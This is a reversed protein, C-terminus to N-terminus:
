IVEIRDTSKFQGYIRGITARRQLLEADDIELAMIRVEQQVLTTFNWLASSCFGGIIQPRIGCRAIHLEVPLAPRVVRWGLEKVHSLSAASERRHAFYLIDECDFMGGFRRLGRRYVPESVVGIDILPQGIFAGVCTSAQGDGWIRRLRELRNRVLEDSGPVPFEFVTFYTVSEAQDLELRFLWEKAATKLPRIGGRSRQKRADAIQLTSMGDDLLVVQEPAVANAGHLMYDAGYNGVFCRKVQGGDSIIRRVSRHLARVGKLYSVVGQELRPVMYSEREGWRVEDALTEIQRNNQTAGPTMATVLVTEDIECNFVSRAEIANWLQFPSAIQFVDM